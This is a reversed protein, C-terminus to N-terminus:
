WSKFGSLIENINGLWQLRLINEYNESKGSKKTVVMTQDPTRNTVGSPRVSLQFKDLVGDKENPYDIKTSSLSCELMIHTGEHYVLPDSRIM